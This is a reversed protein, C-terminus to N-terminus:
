RIMNEDDVSDSGSEAATPDAEASSAPAAVARPWQAGGRRDAARPGSNAKTLLADNGEKVGSSTGSM